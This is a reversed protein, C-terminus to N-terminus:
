FINSIVPQAFILKPPSVKHLLSAAKPYHLCSIQSGIEISEAKEKKRTEGRKGTQIYIIYGSNVRIEKLRTKGKPELMNTKVHYHWNSSNFCNCQKCFFQWFVWSKKKKISILRFYLFHNKILLLKNVVLRGVKKFLMFEYFLCKKWHYTKPRHLIMKPFDYFFCRNNWPWASQLPFPHPVPAAGEARFICCIYFDPGNKWQFKWGAM